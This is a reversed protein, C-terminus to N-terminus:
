KLKSGLKFGKIYQNTSQKTRAIVSFESGLGRERAGLTNRIVRMAQLQERREIRFQPAM